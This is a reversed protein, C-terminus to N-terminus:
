TEVVEMGFASVVRIASLAQEAFGASQSYAVLSQSLGRTLVMNLLVGVILLFPAAGIICLALSWGKTLGVVLGSLGTALSLTISGSKEGLARQIAL